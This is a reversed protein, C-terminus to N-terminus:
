YPWPPPPCHWLLSSHIVPIFKCFGLLILCGESDLSHTMRHHQCSSLTWLSPVLSSLWGLTSWKPDEVFELKRHNVPILPQYPQIVQSFTPINIQQTLWVSMNKSLVIRTHGWNINSEVEQFLWLARNNVLFSPLQMGISRCYDWIVNNPSCAWCSKLYQTWEQSLHGPPPFVSCFIPHHVTCDSTM